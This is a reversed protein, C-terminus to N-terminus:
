LVETWHFPEIWAGASEFGPNCNNPPAFGIKKRHDKQAVGAKGFSM